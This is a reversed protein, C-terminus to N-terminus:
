LFLLVISLAVLAALGLNVIRATEPTRIIQRIGVGFLCWGVCSPVCIVAFVGCILLLEAYYNGGVTTFAPIASLAMMWAKPNVWQFAVAGAFGIPRERKADGSRGATAIKWALWLLVAIGVVRIGLMLDPSSAFASGIGMTLLFVM